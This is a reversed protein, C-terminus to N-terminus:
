MCEKRGWPHGGPKGGRSEGPLLVPTPPWGEELPDEQRVSQVRM